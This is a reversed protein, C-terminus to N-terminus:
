KDIQPKFLKYNRFYKERPMDESYVLRASGRIYRVIFACRRQGTLNAQSCHPLMSHFFFGEGQKVTCNIIKFNDLDEVPISHTGQYPAHRTLQTQFFYENNELKPAPAMTLKDILHGKLAVQLAGNEATVDDLALWLSAANIDDLPWDYGADQHWPVVMGSYPQKVLIMTSFIQVETDDLLACAANVFEPRSCFKAIQKDEWHLNVLPENSAGDNLELLSTIHKNIEDFLNPTILKKFFVIGNQWFEEKKIEQM